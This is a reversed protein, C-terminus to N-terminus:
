GGKRCTPYVATQPDDHWPDYWLFQFVRGERIGYLRTTSNVRLSILDELDMMRIEKLREKAIKSLKQVKVPHSNNGRSRDGSSRYIEAWTMSDLNALIGTLLDISGVGAM